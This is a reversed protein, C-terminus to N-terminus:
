TETTKKVLEFKLMENLGKQNKQELENLYMKYCSAEVQRSLFSFLPTKCRVPNFRVPIKDIPVVHVGHLQFSAFAGSPSSPM